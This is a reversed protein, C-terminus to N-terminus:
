RMYSQISKRCKHIVNQMIEVILPWVTKIKAPHWSHRGRPARWKSFILIAVVKAWDHIIGSKLHKNRDPFGIRVKIKRDPLVIVRM